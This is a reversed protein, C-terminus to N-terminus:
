AWARMRQQSAASPEGSEDQADAEASVRRGAADFLLASGYGPVAWLTDGIRLEGARQPAARAILHQQGAASTLHVLLDAGLNEVLRVRTEIGGCAPAEARLELHEPRVCVAVSEGEGLPTRYRMVAGPVDIGQDPRVTGQLRNIKPSGIFEAIRLDAPDAYIRSPSDVQLLEGDMMVAVRDSMTMAEAQDHTVYIFTAQLRQHLEAIETRMHVRLKADLNSLPEDM